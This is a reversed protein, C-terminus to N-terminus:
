SFIELFVGIINPDFYKGASEKIISIAGQYSFAKRYPRDTILADFVDAVSLIRALLHIEDGVLGDPYGSGDFHEQHGRIIPRTEQLFDVRKIINEGIVSHQKIACYEEFSLRGVKNLINGSVGIKGVDHLIAAYQITRIDGDPLDMQEAITISYQTVRESHGLTYPDKAEVANALASITDFYSKQLHNFLQANDIAVAAQNALITVFELDSKNLKQINNSKEICIVGKLQGKNIIPVGIMSNNKDYNKRRVYREDESVNELILSKRNKAIWGAVGEGLMFKDEKLSKRKVGKANRVILEQSGEKYLLLSGKLAELEDVASNVIVNLVDNVTFVSNVKRSISGLISLYQLSLGSDNQDSPNGSLKLYKEAGRKKRRSPL